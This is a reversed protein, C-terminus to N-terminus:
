MLNFMSQMLKLGDIAPECFQLLQDDTSRIFLENQLVFYEGYVDKMHSFFINCSQNIQLAFGVALLSFLVTFLMEDQMRQDICQKWIHFQLSSQKGQTEGFTKLTKLMKESISKKDITDMIFLCQFTSLLDTAQLDIAYQGEYVLNLVEIVVPNNLLPKLDMELMLDLSDKRETMHLIPERM